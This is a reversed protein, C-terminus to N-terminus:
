VDICAMSSFTIWPNWIRIRVQNQQRPCLFKSFRRFVLLILRVLRCIENQSIGDVQDELEKKEKESLDGADYYKLIHGQGYENILSRVEESIM